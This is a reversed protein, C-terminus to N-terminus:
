ADGIDVVLQGAPIKDVDTRAMGGLAMRLWGHEHHKIGGASRIAAQYPVYPDPNAGAGV